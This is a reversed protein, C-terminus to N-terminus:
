SKEKNLINSIFNDLTLPKLVQQAKLTREYCLKKNEFVFKYANILELINGVKVISCLEKKESIFLEKVFGVDTSIVYISNSAAELVTRPGTESYSPSILVDNSAYIEDLEKGFSIAGLFIVENELKKDKVINEIKNILNGDGVITLKFIYNTQNKFIAISEILEELGKSAVLRGVYLFDITTKEYFPEERLPAIFDKTYSAEYLSLTKSRLFFPLKKKGSIGICSVKNFYAIVATLYYEPLYIAIKFYKIFINIKYGKMVDIPSSVYHYHLKTKLFINLIGAMWSFPEPVRIYIFNSKKILKYIGKSIQFFYKIANLYNSFFPLEIVDIDNLLVYDSPPTSNCTKSLLTINTANKKFVDIYNKHMSPLYYKNDYKMLGWNCYVGINM